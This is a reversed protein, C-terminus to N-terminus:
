ATKISLSARPLLALLMLVVLMNVAATALLVRLLAESGIGGILFAGISPSAAQAMLSPIALRGMLTAYGAPGFLALPLTGRAISELGIGAGYFVLAVAIIPLGSCLTALGAAVLAASAIKTWIPHHYRAIAAEVLRAGVQCPGVLTGFAVASALALGRGQLVTLLHVSLVTSIMASLTLGVVLFGLVLRRSRAEPVPAKAAPAAREVRLREKPLVFWYLPLGIALHLGAYAMCAGRWGLGSVFFASLPWCVTSAFGGFLTLMTIASRASTGYLRGLTGFAPDYLGAGMGVGIVAWAGLYAPISHALALWLLGTALLLSSAALIPRGGRHEIARGVWPSVIAAALLGLSIGGVVWTLNWGTDEAIPKALVALLYYSSGWALIQGLGLATIIVPRSRVAGITMGDIVPSSV